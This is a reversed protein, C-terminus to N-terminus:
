SLTSPTSPQAAHNVATTSMTPPDEVYTKIHLLIVKLFSALPIAFLVGILGNLQSCILLSLVVVVPHLGMTDGIVKPAVINDKITQYIYVVVMLGLLKVPSIFLMLIIAPLFGIWTGVVPLIEAIGFWLGLLFAFPVGFLAYVVMMFIGTAIGLFVQGKVFGYMIHHTDLLLQRMPPQLKQPFLQVFETKLKPGDLLLYFVLVLGTLTYLLGSLAGGLVQAVQSFVQGIMGTAIGLGNAPNNGGVGSPTANNALTANTNAGSSAGAQLPNSSPLTGVRSRVSPNGLQFITKLHTPLWVSEIFHAEQPTWHPHHPKASPHTAESPSFAKLAPTNIPPVQKSAAQHTSTHLREQRKQYAEFSEQVDEQIAEIVVPQEIVWTLGEHVMTPVERQLVSFQELATPIVWLSLLFLTLASLAYMSLIAVARSLTRCTKVVGKPWHYAKGLWGSAKQLLLTLVNVPALLVYVWVLVLGLMVIVSQFATGVQTSILGVHFLGMTCLSLQAARDILTSMRFRMVSTAM